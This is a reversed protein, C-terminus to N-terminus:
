QGGFCMIGCAHARQTYATAKNHVNLWGRKTGVATSRGQSQRVMAVGRYASCSAALNYEHTSNHHSPAGGHAEGAERRRRGLTKGAAVAEDQHTTM